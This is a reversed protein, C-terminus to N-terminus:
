YRGESAPLLLFYCFRAVEYTHKAAFAEAQPPLLLVKAERYFVQRHLRHSDRLMLMYALLVHAETKHNVEHPVPTSM